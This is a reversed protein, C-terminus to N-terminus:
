LADVFGAIGDLLGDLGRRQRRVEPDPTPQPTNARVPRPSSDGLSSTNCDTASWGICAYRQAARVTLTIKDSVVMLGWVKVGVHDVDAQDSQREM